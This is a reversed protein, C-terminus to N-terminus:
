WIKKQMLLHFTLIFSDKEFWHNYGESTHCARFIKGSTWVGTLNDKTIIDM